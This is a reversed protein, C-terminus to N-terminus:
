IGCGMRDAMRPPSPDERRRVAHAHAPHRDDGCWGPGPDPMWDFGRGERDWIAPFRSKPHYQSFNKVVDHKAEDALGVM